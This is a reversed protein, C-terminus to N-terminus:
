KVLDRFPLGEGPQMILKDKLLLQVRFEILPKLHLPVEPPFSSNVEYDEQTYDEEVLQELRQFEVHDM